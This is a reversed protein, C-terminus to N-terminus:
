KAKKIFAVVLASVTKDQTDFSFVESMHSEINAALHPTTAEPRAPSAALFM